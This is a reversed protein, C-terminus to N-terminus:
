GFHTFSDAFSGPSLRLPLPTPQATAMAIAPRAPSRRLWTKMLLGVNCSKRTPYSAESVASVPLAAVPWPNRTLRFQLPCPGAPYVAPNQFCDASLPSG